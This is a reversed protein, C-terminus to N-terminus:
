KPEQNDGVPRPSPRPPVLPRAIPESRTAKQLDAGCVRCVGIYDKCKPCM